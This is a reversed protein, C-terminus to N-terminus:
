VVSKRDISWVVQPLMRFAVVVFLDAGISHLEDLFAPDRLKEPQLIPLNHAIAYEKVPSFTVKQGRGSKRDPVTVVAAVDNGAEIIANLSSVAFDPTGMFVIRPKM